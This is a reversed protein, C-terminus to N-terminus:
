FASRIRMDGIKREVDAIDRELEASIMAKQDRTLRAFRECLDGDIAGKMPAYYGRYFIHDRGALPKDVERMKKELSQFFDVDERKVFPILVGITGQLGSWVLVDRGGSVLQCSQLSTPIDGPYFHAQLELRNPAGGLYAREHTLQTAAGEEDAEESAVPPCRVLWLNGFKDGGAVSDYDMFQACTTWRSATDDAFPLLANQAARWTVMVVSESLDSVAIRSAYAEIGVILNPVVAAAAKRLCQKMGLDYMTLTKGIGVLVRGQFASIALPPEPTKTKHIFRLKKGSDDIKYIHIYGCQFSRPLTTMDKGTGVVLHYSNDTSSSFRVIAISTAAENEELEISSTVQKTKVPDIVQIASAWHGKGRPYGFTEAPLEAADGNVVKPDNQLAHRTTSSLTNYDSSITYFFQREPHQM